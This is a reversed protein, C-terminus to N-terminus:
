TRSCLTSPVLTENQFFVRQSIPLGFAGGFLARGETTNEYLQYASAVNEPWDPLYDRSDPEEGAYEVLNYKKKKNGEWECCASEWEYCDTDFRFGEFLTRRQQWLKSREKGFTRMRENVGALKESVDAVWEELIQQRTGLEGEDCGRPQSDSESESVIMTAKPSTGPSANFGDGRRRPTKAYPSIYRGTNTRFLSSRELNACPHSGLPVSGGLLLSGKRIALHEAM